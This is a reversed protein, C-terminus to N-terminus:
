RAPNTHEGSTEATKPRLVYGWRKHLRQRYHTKAKKRIHRKCKRRAKGRKIERRKFPCSEVVCDVDPETVGNSGLWVGGCVDCEWMVCQSRPIVAVSVAAPKDLDKEPPNVIGSIVNHLLKV